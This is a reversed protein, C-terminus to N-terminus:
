LFFSREPKTSKFKETIKKLAQEWSVVSYHTDGKAKYFPTNIRGSQELLRASMSKFDEISKKQFLETPIAAQIDTLQAQFGKKCIEPKHEMEDTMGGKQGGQGYACTKCTNKSLVAQIMKNVGVKRAANLSYQIAKFGGGVKM